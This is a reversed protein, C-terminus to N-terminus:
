EQAKTARNAFRTFEPFWVLGVEGTRGNRNKRILLHAESPEAAQDFYNPRHVFMVVDADQEIAGSERLHSLQPRKDSTAELQRNLQALCLVPISLERALGKLRRAIKAVQEQRPDKPNDPEILQIYDVVILSLGHKRKLRRATAAIETITRSHADDIYLCSESIVRQAAALLKWDSKEIQRNKIKDNDIRTRSSLLRKILEAREMELSVFLVGVKQDISVNEAINMALATKGMSPRAALITMCGSQLGGCIRDIDPFGTPIGDRKDTKSLNALVETVADAASILSDTNGSEAIAFISQEAHSLVDRPEATVDYAAQLTDTSAHILSRLIAKDRVIGAYHKVHASTPVAQALEMLYAVGGVSELQGSAKLRDVLLVEDVKRGDDHIALIHKFIQGNSESHFDDPRVILAADDCAAPLLLIGGLVAKEAELDRPPTRDLIESTPAPKRGNRTATSSM